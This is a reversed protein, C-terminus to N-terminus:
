MHGEVMFVVVNCRCLFIETLIKNCHLAGNLTILHPPGTTIIFMGLSFM